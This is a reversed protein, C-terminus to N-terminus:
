RKNGIAVMVDANVTNRPTPVEEYSGLTTPLQLHIPIHSSRDNSNFVKSGYNTQRSSRSCLRGFQVAESFALM